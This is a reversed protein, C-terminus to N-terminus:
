PLQNMGLSPVAHAFMIKITQEEAKVISCVHCANILSMSPTSVTLLPWQQKSHVVIIFESVIGEHNKSNEM